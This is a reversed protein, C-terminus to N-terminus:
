RLASVPRAVNLRRVRDAAECRARYDAPRVVDDAVCSEPGPAPSDRENEGENEHCNRQVNSPLEFLRGQEGAQLRRPPAGLLGQGFRQPAPFVPLEDEQGQEARGRALRDYPVRPLEKGQEEQMPMLDAQFGVEE